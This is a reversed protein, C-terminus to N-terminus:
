SLSGLAARKARAAAWLKHVEYADDGLLKACFITEDRLVEYEDLWGMRERRRVLEARWELLFLYTVATQVDGARVGFETPKYTKSM